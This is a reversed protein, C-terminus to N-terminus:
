FFLLMSRFIESILSSEGPTHELELLSQEMKLILDEAEEIYVKKVEDM